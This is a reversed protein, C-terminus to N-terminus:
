TTVPPATAEAVARAGVESLSLGAVAAVGRASMKAVSKRLVTVLHDHDLRGALEDLQLELFVLCLADEHTQVEPDTGLGRKAVIATARETIESPCGAQACIEALEAAQRRKQETRWRLYGARGDPYDARPLAWRRLHHARAAIRQAPGADPDLTRVWHTMREAHVVEKPRAVGDVEITVPDLANASDVAALVAEVVLEISEVPPDAV